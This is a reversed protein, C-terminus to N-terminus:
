QNQQRQLIELNAGQSGLDGFLSPALTQARRMFGQTINGATDRVQNLVGTDAQPAPAATPEIEPAQTIPVPEAPASVGGSAQAIERQKEARRAELRAERDEKALAPSLKEGNRGVAMRIYDSWPRNRLLFVKDENQLQRRFDKVTTEAILSPRFEGRLISAIEARGLNAELLQKKIVNEPTGMARAALVKLFLDSQARYLDDLYGNWAEMTEPITADARGIEANVATKLPRAKSLYEGGAFSFNTRNNIDIPTLGTFIRAVEENTSYVQGREGPQGTIARAVRGPKIEGRREEFGMEMYGPIYGGLVHIASKSLKEGFSEGERYIFAGTPTQGGRGIWSEPLVDRVREAFLAEGAFPETYGKLAAWMSNTIQAAESEGLRGSEQYARIAAVAPDRVFSHPFIYSLNFLEMNGRQDNSLVGLASGDYFEAALTRAAEMEEDTTNTAIMSAKSIAAPLYYSTAVYSLLRQSGIGRVYREFSRAQALAQERTLNPNARMMDDIFRDADKIQFSLEKMGRAVTNAANRINESAFSTFAGFVPIADLTKVAKGVRSYIPMTDKVVDGSTTLIFNSFSDDMSLSTARKALGNELFERRIGDYMERSVPAAPDIGLKGVANALKGQEGFVAMLKFFSDTDGYLQELQRMFPVMVNAAKDTSESLVKAIGGKEQAFDRFDRLAKSVLSNEMVGLAGLEDSLKRIGEDNLNDVNAAVLRFSDIFDSDRHLNANNALAVGNGLANRWQSILNPVITMRQAQGKLVAGIAVAEGLADVQLRAPTTLAEKVEPRVYAGSLDGFIGGFLSEGTEDLDLKVYGNALLDDNFKSALESSTQFGASQAADQFSQIDSGTPNFPDRVILPRGGARLKEFAQFGGEALNESIGRYTRLAALTQATDEATNMFTAKPDKIEGMLKRVSPLDELEQVRKIFMDDNISLVRGPMIVGRGQSATEVRDLANRVAQQVSTGEAVDLGIYNALRQKAILDVGEDSLAGSAGFLDRVSYGLIEEAQEPTYSKGFVVNRMEQLAQRFLPMEEVNQGDLNRYYKVPNTYMDFRRRLYGRQANRQDKMIQVVEDMDAASEGAERKAAIRTEFEAIMEDQQRFNEELMNDFAKGAKAGYKEAIISAGDEGSERFGADTFARMFDEELAKRKKKTMKPLDVVRFFQNTAKEWDKFLDLARRTRADVFGQADMAEEVIDANATGTPSFWYKAKNKLTQAGPVRGVATAARGYVETLFRGTFSSAESVGPVQGLARAGAGAVPLAIDFAMSALGGELGRRFKNMLVNQAREEGRMHTTDVTKLFDPMVDFTDSLTPRGDPTVITEYGTAALATTGALRARSKLLTKGTKSEGFREASKMFKSKAKTGKTAGRAVSSARGLWGAIPIFGLGFAIIEETVEGGMTQPDLDYEKNFNEFARTVNSTYDTDFSLDLGAAGFEMIGQAISVPAKVIGRGIDVMRNEEFPKLTDEAQKKLDRALDLDGDDYASLARQELDEYEQRALAHKKLRKAREIDGNDYATLALNTLEDYTPM